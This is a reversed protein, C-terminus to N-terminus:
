KSATESPIMSMFGTIGKLRSMRLWMAAQQKLHKECPQWIMSWFPRIPKRRRRFDQEVGLHLKISGRSFWCGGRAALNAPKAQEAFGLLDGYFSRAEDERGAPMALQVHDLAVIAM